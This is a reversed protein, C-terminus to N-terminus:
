FNFLPMMSIFSYITNVKTNPKIAKEIQKLDTSDVLDLGIGHMKVYDLILLRTGGYQEDCTVIHDGAKLLSLLAAVAGVGSPYM